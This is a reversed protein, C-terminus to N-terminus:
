FKPLFICLAFSTLKASPSYTLPAFKASPSNFLRKNEPFIFYTEVTWRDHYIKMIEKLNVTSITKLNTLIYYNKIGITYTLINCDPPPDKIESANKKLRFVFKQKRM